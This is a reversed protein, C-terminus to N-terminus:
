RSSLRTLFPSEKCEGRRLLSLTPFSSFSPLLSSVVFASVIKKRRGTPKSGRRAATLDLYDKLFTPATEKLELEPRWEDSSASFGLYRVKFERKNYRTRDGVIKEVLWEEAGDGAPVVPPPTSLARSPFRLDDNAFHPRLKSSHIRPHVRLHPPFDIDVTSKAGDVKLIKYPGVFKPIFKGSISHPFRMGM